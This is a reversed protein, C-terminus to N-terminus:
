GVLFKAILTPNTGTSSTVFVRIFNLMSSSITVLEGSTKTSTYLDQYQGDIDSISGQVKISVTAPAVPYVFQISIARGATTNFGGEFSPLNCQLMATGNSPFAEGTEVGTNPDASGASYFPTSPQISYKPINKTGDNYAPM